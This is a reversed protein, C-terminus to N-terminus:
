TNNKIPITNNRIESPTLTAAEDTTNLAFFRASLIKDYIFHSSGKSEVAVERLSKTKGEDGQHRHDSDQWNNARNNINERM